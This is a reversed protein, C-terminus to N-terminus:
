RMGGVRPPFGACFQIEAVLLNDCTTVRTCEAEATDGVKNFHPPPEGERTRGQLLHEPSWGLFWGPLPWWHLDGGPRPAPARLSPRNAKADTVPSTTIRWITPALVSRDRRSWLRWSGVGNLADSVPVSAGGARSMRRGARRSWSRPRRWPSALSSSAWMKIRAAYNRPPDVVANTTRRRPTLAVKAAPVRVVVFQLSDVVEIALLRGASHRLPLVPRHLRARPRKRSASRENRCTRSRQVRGLQDGGKAAQDCGGDNRGFSEIPRCGSRATAVAVKLLLRCRGRGQIQRNEFRAVPRTLDFGRRPQRCQGSSIVSRAEEDRSRASRM